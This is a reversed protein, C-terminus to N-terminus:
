KKKDGFYDNYHSVAKKRAANITNIRKREREKFQGKEVEALVYANGAAMQKETLEIINISEQLTGKGTAYFDKM